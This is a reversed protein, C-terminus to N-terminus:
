RENEPRRRQVPANPSILKRIKDLARRARVGPMKRNYEPHQHSGIDDAFWGAPRDPLIMIAHYSEPDAYCELANIAVVLATELKASSPRQLSGSAREAADNSEPKSVTEKGGLTVTPWHDSLKTTRLFQNRAHPTSRPVCKCFEM